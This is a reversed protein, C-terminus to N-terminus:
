GRHRKGDGSIPGFVAAQRGKKGMLRIVRPRNDRQLIVFLGDWAASLLSTLLFVPLAGFRRAAVLPLFSCLMSTEHVLEAQCMAQAIGEWSSTAPDFSEPAYTPLKGKWRKVRLRQYLSAEWRRAAFWRARCHAGGRLLRGYLSGIMLRMGLHYTITGATVALTLATDRGGQRYLLCCLLTLGASLAATGQITRQM